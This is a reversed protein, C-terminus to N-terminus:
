TGDLRSNQPYSGDPQEQVTFLYHLARRAAARDGMAILATAIQYLDRSWVAHYVALSQLSNAWAWPRGPAAVFGGRYTKDESAALVMQSVHYETRLHASSRPVPKLTALYQHWGAAYAQ